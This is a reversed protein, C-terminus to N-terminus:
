SDTAKDSYFANYDIRLLLQSLHDRDRVSSLMKFLFQSQREFAEEIRVLEAFGRTHDWLERHKSLSCFDQCLDLLEGLLKRVTSSTRFTQVLLTTLYDDHAECVADFDRSRDIRAMLVTFQADLVDVHLYYQLNDVLFAMKARLNSLRTYTATTDAQRRTKLKWMQETWAGQLGYQVRATRLLFCFLSNYKALVEGTFILQMPWPVDVAFGIEAWGDKTAVDSGDPAYRAPRVVLSFWQFEITDDCGLLSAARAYATTADTETSAAMTLKLFSDAQHYFELFLQGKALLMYDRLARLLQPLKGVRTMMDWMSNATLARLKDLTMELAAVDFKRSGATHLLSLQREVWQIDGDALYSHSLTLSSRQKNFIVAANGIFLAKAAVRLPIFAPLLSEDITALHLSGAGGADRTPMRVFFESADDLLLGHLLWAALQNAFVRRCPVAVSSLAAQVLPVAPGEFQDLLRAGRVQDSNLRTVVDALAALEIKWSALASHLHSLPTQPASCITDEVERLVARYQQLRLDVGVKMAHIYLSRSHEDGVFRRGVFESLQAFTGGVECLSDLMEQESRHMQPLGDIVKLQGDANKVFVDGSHGSLALVLENWM